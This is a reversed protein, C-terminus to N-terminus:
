WPFWRRWWQRQPPFLLAQLGSLTRKAQGIRTQRSHLMERLGAFQKDLDQILGQTQHLEEPNWPPLEIGEIEKEPSQQDNRRLSQRDSLKGESFAKM